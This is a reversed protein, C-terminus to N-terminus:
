EGRSRKGQEIKVGSDITSTSEFIRAYGTHEMRWGDVTRVYRDAYLGAGELAFEFAPALVRDHLYWTGTARDNDIEIEPHHGHHMTILDPVMATSLFDIIAVRSECEHHPYTATAEPVFCAAVGEWDKTDLCRFYAYKLQRIAELDLLRRLDTEASM